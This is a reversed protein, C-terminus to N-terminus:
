DGLARNLLYALRYGAKALQEEVVPAARQLYDDSLAIRTQELDAGCAFGPLQGYAVEKALCTSEEIWAQITVLKIRGAQSDTARSVYKQVLRKAVTMDNQGGYLREVLFTDWVTHLNVSADREGLATINPYLGDHWLGSGDLEPVM